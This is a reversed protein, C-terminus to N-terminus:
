ATASNMEECRPRALADSESAGARGCPRGPTVKHTVSNELKSAIVHRMLDAADDSPTAAVDGARAMDAEASHLGGVSQRQRYGRGIGGGTGRRASPVVAM